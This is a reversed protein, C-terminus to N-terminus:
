RTAPAAPKQTPAAPAPAPKATAPPAPKDNGSPKATGPAPAAPRDPAPAAPKATAAPAPADAAPKEDAAKRRTIVGSDIVAGARSIANFSLQDEFIEAILFTLDTDFGRASINSADVINGARLKGGSGVVFYHIDKQPKLREYFHDHGQFVVSVNENLFIPELTERLRLDSGHRGGSSYLPHHFFAIKWAEGANKLENATWEIQEPEPYTSDLAMFRVDQKPAKFSYYFKGDMNFLKYYRQERSDHNGLAGYFKVGADLLPKYPDEFKRKFDQPREGGYINDGVLVVLEYEFKQRVDAMVKALQYQAPDGTGFDGLVAFKLSGERNPMPTAAPAGAEVTGPVAATPAGGPGPATTTSGSRNVGCASAFVLAAVAALVQRRM